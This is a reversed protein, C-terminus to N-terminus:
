KKEKPCWPAQMESENKGTSYLNSHLFDYKHIISFHKQKCLRSIVKWKIIGLGVDKNTETM